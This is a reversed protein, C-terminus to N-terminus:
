HIRIWALRKYFECVSLCESCYRHTGHQLAFAQTPKPSFQQHNTIHELMEACVILDWQTKRLESLDSEELLSSLDLLRINEIGLERRVLDYGCSDIDIGVCSEAVSSIIGHLWTQDKVRELIIESHDLCGIHLVKTAKCRERIYELRDTIKPRSLDHFRRGVDLKKGSLFDGYVSYIDSQM